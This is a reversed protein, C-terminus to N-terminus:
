VLISGGNVGIIEGNIYNAKESALFSVLNAVDEPEGVRGSPNESAREAWKIDAKEQSGEEKVFISNTLDTKTLGPAVCNVRIKYKSLELALAQTLKNIGAKAAGYVSASKITKEKGLRSSINIIQGNPSNKILPLLLKTAIISTM